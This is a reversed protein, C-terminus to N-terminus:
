ANMREHAGACGFRSITCASCWEICGRGGHVQPVGVDHICTGHVMFCGGNVIGDGDVEVGGSVRDLTARIM